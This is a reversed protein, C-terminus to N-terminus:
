KDALLKKCKAINARITDCCHKFQAQEDDPLNFEIIDEVGDAGIVCPMGVYVNEEGYEGKLSASVPIIKKEDHLVASALTVAISSIGYETCKKGVYTVWGGRIADHTAQARDFQFRTDDLDMDDLRKGNFSVQSWPTMQANGHEGMMYAQISHPDIGTQKTLWHNLRSSDLGTGTGFVHNKPLGSKEAILNTIVDCPNTVNIFFGKFGGAMVKPIYENVQVATFNMEDDRSGTAVLSVNGACNIIIDCDGLEEYAAPKYVVRRPMFLVADMLDQVESKVKQENVDCLRVEDAVGMMGLDFAVHAGVHGIGIVGVIRKKM